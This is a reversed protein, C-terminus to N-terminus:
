LIERQQIDPSKAPDFNLRSAQYHQQLNDKRIDRWMTVVVHDLAGLGSDNIITSDVPVMSRFAETTDSSDRLQHSPREIAVIYGGADHIVQADSPFRVGGIVFLECGNAEALRGQRLLEDYWLTPNIHKTVYGGLWQLLPRYTEKNDETIAQTVLSHNQEVLKLYEILKDFDPDAQITPGTSLHIPQVEGDYHTVERLISPLHALWANIAAPNEATPHSPLYQQNMAHGVKAVLEGSETHRASAVQRLFADALSTKGHGIAGTIGIIIVVFRRAAIRGVLLAQQV